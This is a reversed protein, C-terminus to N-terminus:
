SGDAINSLPEYNCYLPDICGALSCDNSFYSQSDINLWNNTSYTSDDVSICSLSINGTAQFDIFNSNNGNRVDLSFLGNDNCNLRILNTNLRIDLDALLNFQCYLSSLSLNNSLDLVPLDNENCFLLSLNTNTSLSLMSCDLTALCIKNVFDLMPADFTLVALCAKVAIKSSKSIM